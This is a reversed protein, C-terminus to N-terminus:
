SNPHYCIKWYELILTLTKKLDDITNSKKCFGQVTMEKYAKDVSRQDVATSFFVFPISKSRLYPDNDIKLKFELGNMGPLNIDCLIVFPKDSTTKLYDFVEPCSFFYIRKNETKMEQLVEEVLEQDDRDDDILIIPGSKAM